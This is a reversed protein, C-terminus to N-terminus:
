TWSSGNTLDVISGNAAPGLKRFGIIVEAISEINMFYETPVNKKLITEFIEPSEKSIKHFYKHEVDVMGLRLATLYLNPNYSERLAAHFAAELASKNMNVIAGTKMDRYYGPHGEVKILNENM